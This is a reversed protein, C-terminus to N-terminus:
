VAARLRKNFMPSVEVALEPNILCCAFHWLALADAEDTNEANWGLARCRALTEVKAEDRRLNRVGLFHGRVSNVDAGQVEYIGRLFCVGRAIAQLGCLRDRVDANTSGVKALPPLLNEIIVIDPRPQPDLMEAFWRIAHGFIANNSAKPQGFRLSGFTPQGGVQGRAFGTFTAIDFAMIDTM